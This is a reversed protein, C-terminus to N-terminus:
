RRRIAGNASLVRGIQSYPPRDSGFLTDDSSNGSPSTQLRTPRTSCSLGLSVTTPFGMGSLAEIADVNTRERTKTRAEERSKGIEKIQNMRETPAQSTYTEVVGEWPDPPRPETSRESSPPRPKSSSFSYPSGVSTPSPAPSRRTCSPRPVYSRCRTPVQM